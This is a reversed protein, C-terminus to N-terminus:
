AAYQTEYVPEQFEPALVLRNYIPLLSNVVHDWTLRSEVWQRGYQGMTRCL